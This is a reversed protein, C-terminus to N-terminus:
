GRVAGKVADSVFQRAFLLFVAILPIIALLAGAMVVSYDTGHALNLQQLAL